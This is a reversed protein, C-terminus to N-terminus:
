KVVFKKGNQIYIGKQLEKRGCSIREGKMNYVPSENADIAINDISTPDFEKITWFNKWVNATQYRELSGEPVYVTANRYVKNAFENTELPIPSFLTISTLKDSPITPMVSGMVILTEIATCADFAGDGYSEINASCVLNTLASCGGFTKEGITTLSEPFSLSTLSTCNEFANNGISEVGEKFEVSVLRSCGAFASNGIVTMNQPIVISALSTCNEFANDDITMVGRALTVTALNKCGAFASKGITGVTQPIEVSVLDENDVFVMEGIQYDDGNYDEPLTLATENGTYYILYHQGEETNFYFNGIVGDANVVRSAYYAVYGNDSRGKQIDLSSLNIVMHLNKCGSFADNGISTVGKPITIATLSKCNYFTNSEISTVGKPITIATLSKCNEFASSGISTVGEPITISTLSKCKYFAYSGISTVSEPIILDQLLEGNLYLNQAYCLPNANASGFSISCWAAIDSIHVATLSNCNNFASSGFSTVSAPITVSILNRCNEFAHEDIGIM